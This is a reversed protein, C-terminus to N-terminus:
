GPTRLTIEDSLFLGGLSNKLLLCAPYKGGPRFTIRGSICIIQKTINHNDTILLRSNKKQFVWFVGNVENCLGWNALPRM